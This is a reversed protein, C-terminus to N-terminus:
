ARGRTPLAALWAAADPMAETATRPLRPMAMPLLPLRPRWDDAAASLARFANHFREAEAGLLPAGERAEAAEAVSLVAARAAEAADRVRKMGAEGVRRGKRSPAFADPLFALTHAILAPLIRPSEPLRWPASAAELRALALAAAPAGPGGMIGTEEEEACRILAREARNWEAVVRLWAAEDLRGALPSREWAARAAPMTWLALGAPEIRLSLAFTPELDLARIARAEESTPLRSNRWTPRWGSGPLATM